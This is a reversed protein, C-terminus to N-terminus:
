CLRNFREVWNGNDRFHVVEFHIQKNTLYYSASSHEFAEPIKCLQPEYRVPNNHIYNLKENLMKDNYILKADFSTEFVRHLKNEKKNTKTLGRKLKNIVQHLGKKKLRTIMEYAIFRKGNGIITNLSQKPNNLFLILHIHNPMICYANVAHGQQHLHTFWKYILDYGDTLQILPIWNYCTFTVFYQGSEIDRKVRVSM